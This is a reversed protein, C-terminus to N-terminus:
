VAAAELREKWAVGLTDAAKQPERRGAHVYIETTKVSEHGLFRQATRIDFGLDEILETASM